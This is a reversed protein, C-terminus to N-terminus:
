RKVRKAIPQSRTIGKLVDRVTSKGIGGEIDDFKSAIAARQLDILGLASRADGLQHGDGL